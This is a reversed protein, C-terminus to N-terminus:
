RCFNIPDLVIAPNETPSILFHYQSQDLEDLDKQSIFLSVIEAEATTSCPILTM